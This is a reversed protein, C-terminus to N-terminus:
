ENDEEDLHEVFDNYADKDQLALKTAAEVIVGKLNKKTNRILTEKERQALVKSDDIIKDAEEQALEKKRKAEIDAEMLIDSKIQKAEDEINQLKENHEKLIKESELYNSQTKNELDKYYEERKEIFDVIPQYLLYNLAIGLVAFNFLHLLIQQIDIGLM